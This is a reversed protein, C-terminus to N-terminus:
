INDQYCRYIQKGVTDNIEEIADHKFLSFYLEFVENFLYREGFQFSTNKQEFCNTLKLNKLKATTM